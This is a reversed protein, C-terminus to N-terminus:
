AHEWEERQKTLAKMLHKSDLCSTAHLELLLNAVKADISKDNCLDQVFQDVLDSRPMDVPQVNMSAEKPSISRNVLVQSELRQGASTGRNSLNL